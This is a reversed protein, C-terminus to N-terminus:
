AAMQKLWAWDQSPRRSGAGAEAQHGPNPYHSSYARAQAQPLNAHMVPASKMTDM